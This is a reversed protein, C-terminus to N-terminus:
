ESTKDIAIKKKEKEGVTKTTETYMMSKGTKKKKKGRGM